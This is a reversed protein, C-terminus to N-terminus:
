IVDPASAPVRSNNTGNADVIVGSGRLQELDAEAYGLSTLIESSHQGVLPAPRYIGAPSKGFITTPRIYRISGESPHEASEFL